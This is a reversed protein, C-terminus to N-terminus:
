IGQGQERVSRMFRGRIGACREIAVVCMGTIARADGYCKALRGLLSHSM